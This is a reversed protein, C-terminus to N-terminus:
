KWWASFRHHSVQKEIPPLKMYDGYANSLYANYNKMIMFMRDEFKTMIFEEMLATDFPKKQLMGQVCEFCRHYSKGNFRQANKSIYKAIFRSSIPFLLVKGFLLVINKTFSRSKSLKIYKIESMRVWFRRKRNYTQWETDSDPVSDIPYIDIYVGIQNPNSTDEQLLTRNDYAQAYAKHWKKDRELSVLKIHHYEDPFLSVLNEYDKRTLYIDIDDDWPIYGQHRIAGLFTGCALSYRISNEECFTQIKELIDMQIIKLEEIAIQKKQTQSKEM